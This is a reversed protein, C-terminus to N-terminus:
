IINIEFFGLYLEDGITIKIRYTGKGKPLIPRVLDDKNNDLSYILKDQGVEYDKYPNTDDDYNVTADVIYYKNILEDDLNYIELTGYQNFLKLFTYVFDLNANIQMTGLKIDITIGYVDIIDEPNYNTKNPNNLTWIVADSENSWRRIAEGGDSSQLPIVFLVFGKANVEINDKKSNGSAIPLFINEYNFSGYITLIAKKKGEKSDIRIGTNTGNKITVDKIIVESANVFLGASLDTISGGTGPNEFIVKEIYGNNVNSYILNYKRSEKIILDYFYVNNSIVEIIKDIGPSSITYGNGVITLEYNINLTNSLEINSNLIIAKTKNNIENNLEEKTYIIKGNVILLPKSKIIEKSEDNPIYEVQYLFGGISLDNHIFSYNNDNDISNGNLYWKITGNNLNNPNNNLKLTRSTYNSDQIQIGELELNLNEYTLIFHQYNSQYKGIIFYIMYNGDNDFEFEKSIKGINNEVIMDEELNIDFTERNIEELNNNREIVIWQGNKHKLNGSITAEYEVKKITTTDIIYDNNINNKLLIQTPKINVKVVEELELKKDENNKKYEVTAKVEEEMTKNVIVILEKKNLNDTQEINGLYWKITLDKETLNNEKLNKFIITFKVDKLDENEEYYQELDGDIQFEIEVDKTSPIPTIEECGILPILLIFLFLAKKINRM